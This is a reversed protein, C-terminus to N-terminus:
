AICDTNLYLLLSQLFSIVIGESLEPACSERMIKLMIKDIALYLPDISQIFLNDYPNPQQKTTNMEKGTSESKMTLTSLSYPTFSSQHKEQNSLTVTKSKRIPFTQRQEIKNVLRKLLQITQVRFEKEFEIAHINAADKNFFIGLHKFSNLPLPKNFEPDNEVVNKMM